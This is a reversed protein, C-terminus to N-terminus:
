KIRVVAREFHHLILVMKCILSSFNTLNLLIGVRVYNTFCPIQPKVGLFRGRLKYYQRTPCRDEHFNPNSQNGGSRGDAFTRPGETRARAISIM